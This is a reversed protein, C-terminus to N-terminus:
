TSSPSRSPTAASSPRHWWRHRRRSPRAAPGPSSGRAGASSSGSARPRSVACWAHSWWRPRDLDVLLGPRGRGPRVEGHELRGVTEPQLRDDGTAVTIAEFAVVTPPAEGFAPEGGVQDPVDATVQQGSGLDEATRLVGDPRASTTPISQAFHFFDDPDYRRKVAVLRPLNAGYYAEAWDVLTPDIYNQYAADSVFPAMAGAARRWGRSPPTWRRLRPARGGRPARSCPACPTATSSPPPMPPWPTSPAGTPTSSSAEEWSPFPPRCTRCRETRGCRRRRRVAGDDPLGLDRRVVSRPLTAGASEGSLHCQGVSLDECGAEVLMAHLYSDAGVFRDHPTRREAPAAPARGTLADPGGVFVGNSRVNLGDSGASQLQCNSWLEDPATAMWEQWRGLVDAAAEWPWNVTFLALEPLPHLGFTFSTAIGFNGGGGGRSAWFLDAHDDASCTLLRGDATVVDLAVLNDCTLGYKRGVVGIGGGLTLGAIGVTPCSGAPLLMGASSLQDYVDVLQTGAGIVASMQTTDTTVTNSARCTSRGTGNGDLLRRLQARRQPPHRHHRPRPRLRRLAPRRAASACYAVAAPDVDAFRLNYVLKAGAYAAASPLVLTGDLSRALGVVRGPRAGRDDVATTGASRDTEHRRVRLEPDGCM